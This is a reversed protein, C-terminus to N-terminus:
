LSAVLADVRGALGRLGWLPQVLHDLEDEPTPQIRTSLFVPNHAVEGRRVGLQTMSLLWPRDFAGLEMGIPAFLKIVDKETVGNNGQIINVHEALYNQTRQGDKPDPTYTLSQPPYKDVMRRHLVLHAQLSFPLGGSALRKVLAATLAEATSELFAEIEAHAFLRFALIRLTEGDDYTGTPSPVPLLEHRCRSVQRVLGRFAKSQSM